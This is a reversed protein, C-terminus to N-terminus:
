LCNTGELDEGISMQPKHLQGVQGKHCIGEQNQIVRHARM